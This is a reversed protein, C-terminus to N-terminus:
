YALKLVWALRNPLKDPTIAPIQVQIGAATGLAKWKFLGPYGLMTVSLNAQPPPAGLKLLNNEPWVLVICYVSLGGDAGKKSTYRFGVSRIHFDALHLRKEKM